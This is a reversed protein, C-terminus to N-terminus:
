KILVKNELEGEDVEGVEYLELIILNEVSSFLNVINSAGQDRHEQRHLKLNSVDKFYIDCDPCLYQTSLKEIRNVRRKGEISTSLVCWWLKCDQKNPGELRASGLCFSCKDCTNNDVRNLCGNCKGCQARQKPEIQSGQKTAVVRREADAKGAKRPNGVCWIFECPWKQSYPRGLRPSGVCYKCKGCTYNDAHNLCGNCQGCQVVQKPTFTFGTPQLREVDAKGAKRSNKVCWRFECPKRHSYPGGLRLSDLCFKCKDCTYKDAHNLCGNCELCRNVVHKTFISRYASYPQPQPKGRNAGQNPGIQSRHGTALDTNGAKRPNRACWRFWCPKKLSNHGGLRPSDLCYKCKDCTYNDLHNLCGNCKLCREVRKELHGKYKDRTISKSRPNGVCWRFECLKKQIDQGGLRVSDLCFKCKDCTYNDAHNLCGKCKLCRYFLSNRSLDSLYEFHRIDELTSRSSMWGSHLRPQSSGSLQNQTGEIKIGYGEAIAEMDEDDKKNMVEVLQEPLPAMERLPKMM